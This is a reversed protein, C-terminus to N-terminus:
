VRRSRGFGTLPKRNLTFRTKAPVTILAATDKAMATNSALASPGSPRPTVDSYWDATLTPKMTSESPRPAAATYKTARLSKVGRWASSTPRVRVNNAPATEAIPTSSVYRSNSSAIASAPTGYQSAASATGAATCNRLTSATSCAWPRKAAKLAIPRESPSVASTASATTSSVLPRSTERAM